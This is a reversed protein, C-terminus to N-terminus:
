GRRDVHRRRRPGSGLRRRGRGDPMRGEVAVAAGQEADVDDVDQQGDDSEPDVVEPRLRADARVEGPLGLDLAVAEGIVPRGALQQQARDLRHQDEAQRDEERERAWSVM